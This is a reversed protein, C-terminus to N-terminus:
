ILRGGIITVKLEATDSKRIVPDFIVTGEVNGFLLKGDSTRESAVWYFQNSPLGDTTYYATARETQPCFSTVGRNTSLWLNGSGDEEIAYIVNDSLGSETGYNKFM